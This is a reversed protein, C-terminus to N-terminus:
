QLPELAVELRAVSLMAQTDGQFRQVRWNLMHGMQFWALRKMRDGAMGARINRPLSWTQGDNSYSTSVQPDFGGAVRGTLCVLEISNFIAGRGENYFIFTSFEWRAVDGFQNATSPTMIGVDGTQADAVLWVGNSFVPDVVRYPAFGITASTLQFWIPAGMLQSATSDYAITRDQLRIWLHAHGLDTRMELIIQTPNAQEALMKDIERTSIKTAVGNIGLYVGLSENRGGGVFAVTSEFAIAANHGIAGKPIQASENRQFPFLNAGVNDFVEITNRNVAYIENRIKVITLIPDPDAEASGYRLPNISFPNNIDTVVLFEGDTTMFYGDIWKVALALGLDADVVQQLVAGNWYYMRGGSTIALYDFSYDFSCRGGDGVDGLIITNSPSTMILKTGMVRFCNGRWEIGGRPIGPTGGTRVSGEAPRLYGSSIGTDSPVPVMNVPFSTRFDSNSDTAIGSLIPIQM